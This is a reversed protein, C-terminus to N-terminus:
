AANKARAEQYLTLVRKVWGGDVCFRGPTSLVYSDKYDVYLEGRAGIFVTLDCDPDRFVIDGQEHKGLVWAVVRAKDILGQSQAAVFYQKYLKETSTSPIKNGNYADTM